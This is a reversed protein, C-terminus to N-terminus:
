LKRVSQKSLLLRVILAALLLVGIHWPTVPLAPANSDVVVSVSPGAADSLNGLADAATEPAISIGLTGDGSIGWVAITRSERGSGSVVVTGTATGTANLVIDGISLSISDAETYTIPYFIPGTSTTSLSPPGIVIAPATNDVVFTASPGAAGALNGLADSATDAVISIGLTGTGSTNSITVTRTTPGSGSTSVTGTATGTANLTVNNEQLTITSAGTYNLLYDVPGTKTVSPSPQGISIMGEITVTEFDYNLVNSAANSNGAADTFAGAQVQAAFPGEAIPTLTFSYTADSGGFGSKTANTVVIDGLTFNSAPQSLSVNVMIALHTPNSASSSLTVAPATKDLTYSEGEFYAGNGIGIGGLPISLPNVITDDDEVNLRITGDGNGTAVTVTRIKGSGTVNAVSAGTISGTTALSFDSIDIGTMPDTFKVTLDVSADNTPNADDRVSSVVKPVSALKLVFVDNGGDSTLIAADPGFDFDVSGSFQGTVYADGDSKVALALGYDGDSGGIQKAWVYDGSSNLKCVFIDDSGASSTLNVTAVGPDFDATGKFYGTTYVNDASDLAIGRGFDNSPGGLQKAWLFNGSSDLKAVFVDNGGAPTLNLTSPSPDFDATGSFYGSTYVNGESDLALSIGIDDNVSGIRKAWVLNGASDLKCIFIDEDGASTLNTTAPGPNFDVTGSFNGAIYVNGDSDMTLSRGDEHSTGGIRKAWVLNGSANFKSVFVDHDGAATLQATGTGPDFDAILSFYGTTYVNHDSDLAISTAVDTSIGGMQKVWVFAGASDLKLVFIDESGSTSTLSSNGPGPNFDVTGRFEGTFYINGDSDVAVSHGKDTASSGFSRAWIFSGADDLASAYIDRGPGTLEYTDPGPDFDVSGTYEGTTFVNGAYDVAVSNGQESDDGSLAKVWVFSADQARAGPAVCIFLTLTVPFWWFRSVACPQEM